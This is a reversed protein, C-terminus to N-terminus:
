AAMAKLGPEDQMKTFAATVADIKSELVASLAKVAKEDLSAMIAIKSYVEAHIQGLAITQAAASKFGAFTVDNLHLVRQDQREMATLPAENSPNGTPRTIKRRM